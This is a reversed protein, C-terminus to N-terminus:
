EGLCRGLVGCTRRVGYSLKEDNDLIEGLGQKNGAERVGLLIIIILCHDTMHMHIKYLRLTLVLIM